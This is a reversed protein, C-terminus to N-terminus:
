EGGKPTGASSAGTKPNINEGTNPVYYSGDKPDLLVAGLGVNYKDLGNVADMNEKYRIDNRSMWGGALALNWAEYRSKMDIKTIESMDAAWFLKKKETELLMVRNLASEFARVIPLIAFKFYREQDDSIGFIANIENNLSTKSQNLQMELSTSGSEQFKMGNNLILVRDGNVDNFSAWRSRLEDMSEQTLKTASEIFGKRNGGTKVLGLQYVLMGISTQLASNVESIISEGSSGDNTARVIKIFEYPEFMQGNVSIIYRKFIPDSNIQIAVRSEDVYHISVVRNLSKNIYAYGGKGLLYDKVIQKKFQIGDLTDHTDDNIMNVRPDDVLTVVKKGDSDTEEKYLKFPIVSFTNTIKEVAAAVAPISLAQQKTIQEGSLISRLLDDTIASVDLVTENKPEARSRFPWKLRM